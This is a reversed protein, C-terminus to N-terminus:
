AYANLMRCPLEPQGAGCAKGDGCMVAIGANGWWPLSSIADM